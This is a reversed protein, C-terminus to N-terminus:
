WDNGMLHIAGLPFEKIQLPYVMAINYEPLTVENGMEDIRLTKDARLVNWGSRAYVKELEPICFLLGADFRQIEAEQMAMTMVVDCLGQGRYDALVFVNQIGAVRLSTDGVRVTRDVIGVHAVIDDRDEMVISFSPYSGHWARTKGFTDSNDPFCRCLSTKIRADLTEDIDPEQVKRIQTM